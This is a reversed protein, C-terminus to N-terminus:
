KKFFLIFGLHYFQNIIGILKNNLYNVKQTNVNEFINFGGYCLINKHNTLSETKLIHINQIIEGKDNTLFKHQPINHNDYQESVLYPM